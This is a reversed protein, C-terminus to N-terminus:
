PQKFNLKLTGLAAEIAADDKSTLLKAWDSMTKGHVSTNLVKAKFQEISNHEIRDIKAFNTDLRYTFKSMLESLQRQHWPQPSYEKAGWKAVLSEASRRKAADGQFKYGNTNTQQLNATRGSTDQPEVVLYDPPNHYHTDRAKAVSAGSVVCVDLVQPRGFVMHEPIWALIVVFTRDDAFHTQSERFRATIETALPSWAKIEFGPTPKVKGEFVADPFGPDQRKWRGLGDFEPRGNLHAVTDLEILNALM